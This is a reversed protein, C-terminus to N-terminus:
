KVRKFFTNRIYYSNIQKTDLILRQRLIRTVKTMLHIGFDAERQYLYIGAGGIQFVPKDSQRLASVTKKQFIFVQGAAHISLVLFHEWHGSGYTTNM